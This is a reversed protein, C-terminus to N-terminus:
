PSRDAPSRSPPKAAAIEQAVRRRFAEAQEHRQEDVFISLKEGTLASELQAVSWVEGDCVMALYEHLHRRTERALIRQGTPTLTIALLVGAAGTKSEISRLYRTCLFAQPALYYTQGASVVARHDAQQSQSASRLEFSSRPPCPVEQEGAYAALEAAERAQEAAKAPDTAAQLAAIVAPDLYVSPDLRLDLRDGALRPDLSSLLRRLEPALQEDATKDRIAQHADSAPTAGDFLVTLRLTPTGALPSEMTMVIGRSAVGLVQRTYDLDSAAWFTSKPVVFALAKPRASKDSKARRIATLIQRVRAREKHEVLFGPAYGVYAATKGDLLVQTIDGEPKFRVALGLQELTETACSQWARPDIDGRVVGAARDGAERWLQYSAVVKPTLSRWCAAPNPMAVLLKVMPANTGDAGMVSQTDAPLWGLHTLSRGAPPAAESAAFALLSPLAWGLLWPAALM